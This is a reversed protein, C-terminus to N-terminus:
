IKLWQKPCVCREIKDTFWQIPAVVKNNPYNPCLWASWWAFSSNSIIQGSCSAMLNMDELETRGKSFECDKFMEQKMCWDIDDSFVLFKRDPFEAMARQYYDESLSVYFPNGIYDGRRCHIAVKDIPTPIDQGFMKRIIDAHDAFYEESQFYRDIGVDHAFSLCFAEKFMRNGLRGFLLDPNQM